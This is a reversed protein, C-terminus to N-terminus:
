SARADVNVGYSRSEPQDGKLLEAGLIRFAPEGPLYASGDDAVHAVPLGTHVWIRKGAARARRCFAFDEAEDVTDLVFPDSPLDDLLSARHLAFHFGIREVEVIDGPQCNVGPRPWSGDIRRVAPCSNAARPSFWGALLDIEPHDYLSQIAQTLTGARWWSDDDIWLIFWGGSPTFPASKAATRALNALENRAIDVPKRAVTQLVITLRDTRSLSQVTEVAIAGRTPMLCMIAPGQISRRPAIPVVPASRGCCRKYKVGSGCPCPLNRGNM